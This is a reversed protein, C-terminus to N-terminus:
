LEPNTGIVAILVVFKIYHSAVALNSYGIAKLLGIQERELAVLRGLTVNILFGAVFLFIPPLTRSMANLMDWGERQGHAGARMAQGHSGLQNAPPM